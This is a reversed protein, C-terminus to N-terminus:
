GYNAGAARAAEIRDNEEGSCLACDLLFSIQHIPCIRQVDYGALAKGQDRVIIIPRPKSAEIKALQRIIYDIEARIPAVRNHLVAWAQSAAETNGLALARDVKQRANLEEEALQCGLQDLWTQVDAPITM